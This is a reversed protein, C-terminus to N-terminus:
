PSARHSFSGRRKEKVRRSDDVDEFGLDESAGRGGSSSLGSSTQTRQRFQIDSVVRPSRRNGRGLESSSYGHSSDSNLNVTNSVSHGYNIILTLAPPYMATIIQSVSMFISTARFQSSTPSTSSNVSLALAFRVVQIACYILGSETLLVLVKGSQMKIGSAAALVHHQHATYGIMATALLNATISVVSGTISLTSSIDAVSLRSGVTRTPRTRMVGYAIWLAFSSFVLFMLLGGLVKRFRGRWLALARWAALADNIVFLLGTDGSAALWALVPNYRATWQNFSIAGTSLPLSTNKRLLERGGVVLGAVGLSSRITTVIFTLVLATALWITRNTKHPRTVITYMAMSWLVFYAGYLTMESVVKNVADDLWNGTYALVSWDEPTM